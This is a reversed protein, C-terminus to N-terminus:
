IRGAALACGMADRVHDNSKKPMNAFFLPLTAKVLANSASPNGTVQQRWALAPLRVVRHGLLSAVAASAVLAAVVGGGKGGGFAFGEVWEVAVLDLEGADELLERVPGLQSKVIGARVLRAPENAAGAYVLAWGSAESGPDFALIRRM